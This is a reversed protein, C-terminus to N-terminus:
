NETVAGKKQPDCVVVRRIRLIVINVNDVFIM